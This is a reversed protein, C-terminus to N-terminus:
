PGLVSRIRALLEGDDAEPIARLDLVVVDDAVRAIVDQRRLARQLEAASREGHSIVVARSGMEAAPMSGGGAVSSSPRVEIKIGAEIESLRRVIATAREDLAETSATAMKWLPIESLRDELHLDITAQLAALTMKDPRVARMMPHRAIREILASRGAIVGAQPGGFLKDGSFTIVDAGAEIALRADPEDHTWGDPVTSVLGSGIDHVLLVGRGRALKALERATAEETFGEIRYNSPHVKLIAATTPAIAREYDAVRTRNTTGVEVLRAGSAELVDPIRFEGGIEILEGRSTIVDKGACLAAMTVLVAAANNNVVLASEAGTLTALGVAAHSYRNGRGGGALDYELNSYGSSIRRVADLQVEGLPVRGLNTHILVGTANLM